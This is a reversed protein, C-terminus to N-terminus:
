QNREDYARNQDEIWELYEADEDFSFEDEDEENITRYGTMPYAENVILIAPLYVDWFNHKVGQENSNVIDLAEQLSM